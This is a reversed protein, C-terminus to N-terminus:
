ERVTHTLEISNDYCFDNAWEIAAEASLNFPAFSLVAEYRDTGSAVLKKVDAIIRLRNAVKPYGPTM